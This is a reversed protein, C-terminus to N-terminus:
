ILPPCPNNSVNGKMHELNKEAARREAKALTHEKNAKLLRLSARMPSVVVEPIAAAAPLGSEVTGAKVYHSPLAKVGIIQM